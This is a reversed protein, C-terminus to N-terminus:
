CPSNSSRCLCGSSAWVPRDLWRLSQTAIPSYYRTSPTFATSPHQTRPFRRCEVTNSPDNCSDLWPSISSGLKGVGWHSSAWRLSCALVVRTLRLECPSLAFAVCCGQDPSPQHPHPAKSRGSDSWGELSLKSVRRQLKANLCRDVSVGFAALDFVLSFTAQDSLPLSEDVALKDMASIAPDSTSYVRRGMEQKSPSCANDTALRTSRLLAPHAFALATPHFARVTVTFGQTEGTERAAATIQSACVGAGAGSM